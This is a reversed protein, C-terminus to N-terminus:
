RLINWFQRRSVADMGSTPEDLILIKPNGILAIAICMKRKMGGSFTNIKASIKSSLGLTDLIKDAELHLKNAPLGKLTGFLLLHQKATLNEFLINDQPCIGISQRISDM